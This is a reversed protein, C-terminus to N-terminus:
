LYIYIYIYIYINLFLSLHERLTAICFTAKYKLKRFIQGTRSFSHSFNHHPNFDKKFNITRDTGHNQEILRTKNVNVEKESIYKFYTQLRGASLLHSFCLSRIFMRYSAIVLDPDCKNTEATRMELGPDCKNTEATRMEFGLDCENTEAARMELGPDCKNTEATRV